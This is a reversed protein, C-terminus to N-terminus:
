GKLSAEGVIRGVCWVGPPKWWCGACCSRDRKPSGWNKAIATAEVVAQFSDLGEFFGAIREPERCDFRKRDVVTREKDVVCISITKKHLDIGVYNM